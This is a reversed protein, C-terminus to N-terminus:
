ITIVGAHIERHCRVCVLVCKDLETINKEFKWHVRLAGTGYGEKELPNKHHFDMAALCRNYGCVICKGGKYDVAKQKERSAWGRKSANVSQKVYDQKRYKRLYANKHERKVPDSNYAKHYASTAAKVNPRKRYEAFYIKRCESCASSFYKRAKKYEATPKWEGCTGCKKLGNIVPYKIKAPM